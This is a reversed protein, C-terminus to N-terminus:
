IPDSIYGKISEVYGPFVLCVAGSFSAGLMSCSVGNMGKTCWVYGIISGVHVCFMEICCLIGLMGGPFGLISGHTGVYGQSCFCVVHYELCGEPFVM